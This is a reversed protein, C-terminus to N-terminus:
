EPFWKESLPMQREIVEEYVKPELVFDKVQDQVAYPQEPLFKGCENLIIEQVIQEKLFHSTINNLNSIMTKNYIQNQLIQSKARQHAGAAQGSKSTSDVASTLSSLHSAANNIMEAPTMNASFTRAEQAHASAGGPVQSSPQSGRARMLADVASLKHRPRSGEQRTKPKRVGAGATMTQSLM